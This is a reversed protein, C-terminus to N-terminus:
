AIAMQSIFSLTLNLATIEWLSYTEPVKKMDLSKIKGESKIILSKVLCKIKLFPPHRCSEKRKTTRFVYALAGSAWNQIDAAILIFSCTTPSTLLFGTLM